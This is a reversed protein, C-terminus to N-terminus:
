EEGLRYSWEGEQYWAYCDQWELVFNKGGWCDIRFGFGNEEERTVEFAIYIGAIKEVETDIMGWECLEEFSGSVVNIKYETRLVELLIEKQEKELNNGNELNLYLVEGQYPQYVEEIVKSYLDIKGNEKLFQEEKGEGIEELGTANSGDIGELDVSEIISQAAVTESKDYSKEENELEDERPVTTEIYSSGNLSTTSSGNENFSEQFVKVGIILLIGAAATAWKWVATHFFPKKQILQEDEAEKILDDEIMGIVRFLREKKM